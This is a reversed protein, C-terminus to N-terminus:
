TMTVVIKGMAKRAVLWRIAEPARDLPFRESILPRIACKAYFELLERTSAEFAERERDVWAAWFVGVIQCIKLVGLNLPVQSIGAPFGLVLFRGEWVISPL